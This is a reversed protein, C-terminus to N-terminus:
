KSLGAMKLRMDPKHGLELRKAKRYLIENTVYQKTFELKAELSKSAEPVWQPLRNLAADIKDMTIEDNGIRAIVINGEETNEADPLIKTRTELEYQTQNVMGPHELCAVVKQGVDAALETNPHEFEM